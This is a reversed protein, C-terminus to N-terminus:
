RPITLITGVEILDPNTVNNTKAIKDYLYIDGYARAAITSLWDGPAVTYTNGTIKGGWQNTDPEKVMMQTDSPEPNTSVIEVKPIALIQGTEILDPNALNNTKAIESFKYGDKYYQEAILFLTDGEKVTYNGPLDDPTVNEEQTIDETKQAPGLSEKGKNFYNFLLIITVLVILAGLVMSLKSQSTQIESNIRDLYTQNNKSSKKPM